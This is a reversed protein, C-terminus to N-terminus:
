VEDGDFVVGGDDGNFLSFLVGDKAGFDFGSETKASSNLNWDSFWVILQLKIYNNYLILIPLEM